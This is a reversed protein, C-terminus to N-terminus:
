RCQPLWVFSWSRQGPRMRHAGTESLCVLMEAATAERPQIAAVRRGATLGEVGLRRGHAIRWLTRTLGDLPRRKRM